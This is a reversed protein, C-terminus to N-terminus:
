VIQMKLNKMLQIWLKIFINILLNIPKDSLAEIGFINLSISDIFNYFIITPISIIISYIILSMFFDFNLNIKKNIKMLNEKNIFYDLKKKIYQNDSM